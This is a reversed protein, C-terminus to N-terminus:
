GQKSPQTTTQAVPAPSNSPPSNVAPRQRDESSEEPSKEHPKVTSRIVMMKNLMDFWFPAGFSIAFATILWGPIAALILWLDYPWAACGTRDIWGAQAKTCAVRREAGKRVETWGLPLGLGFLQERLLKAQTEATKIKADLEEQATTEAPKAPSSATPAPALEAPTALAAAKSAAAKKRETEVRAILATDQMSTTAQEVLAERADTNIALHKVIDITDVNLVVTIILGVMFLIRQTERKYWGSVRDMGSDYWKQLNQIALELDDRATDLATLVAREVYPNDLKGLSARIQAVTLPTDVAQGAANANQHALKYTEGRGALDLLALAFNRAPIYSPLNTPKTGPLWSWITAWLWSLGRFEGRPNASADYIGPYLSYVLPHEYLKRALQTSDTDRLLERIGRELHLARSKLRGEISERVASCILSLLLYIFFLGIAIDLVVSGFM